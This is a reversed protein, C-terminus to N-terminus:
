GTVKYGQWRLFPDSIEVAQGFGYDHDQEYDYDAQQDPQDVSAIGDILIVLV